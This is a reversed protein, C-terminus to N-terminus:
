RNLYRTRVADAEAHLLAFTLRSEFVLALSGYVLSAVGIMVSTITTQVVIPLWAAEEPALLGAGLLAIMTSFAFAGIALYFATMAAVIIRVRREATKLQTLERQAAASTTDTHQDLLGALKRVRDVARALRNSTGLLLVSAANTLLAPAAIFTLAAFPSVTLTEPLSPDM